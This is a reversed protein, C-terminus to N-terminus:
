DQDYDQILLAPMSPIESVLCNTEISGAVSRSSPAGGKQGPNSRAKAAVEMVMPMMQSM